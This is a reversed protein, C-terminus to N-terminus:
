AIKRRRTSVLAGLAGAVLLMSGPEPTPNTGNCAGNPDLTGVCISGNALLPTPLLDFGDWTSLVVNSLTLPTTGDAAGTFNVRALRFGDGESAKLSAFTETADAVFFLDLSGASFGGSMELPSAGMKSDPDNFFTAGNVVANLFDLTLQFGGVAEDVTLGSLFIDISATGGVTTNQSSPSISIQSANAQTVVAAAALAALALGRLKRNMDM